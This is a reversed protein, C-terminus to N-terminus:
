ANLRAERQRVMSQAQAIVYAIANQSLLSAMLTNCMAHIGTRSADAMTVVGEEDPEVDPCTAMLASGVATKEDAGPPRMFCVTVFAYDGAPDFVPKDEDTNLAM